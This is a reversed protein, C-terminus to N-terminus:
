GHVFGESGDNVYLETTSMIDSTTSSGGATVVVTKGQHASSKISGCILFSKGVVMDPGATFEETVFDFIWTKKSEEFFWDDVHGGVIMASTADIM